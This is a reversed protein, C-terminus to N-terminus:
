KAEKPPEEFLVTPPIKLNEAIALIIKLTANVKGSELKSVYSPDKGLRLSLERASLIKENRFFRIRQIVDEQKM